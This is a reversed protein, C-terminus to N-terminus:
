RTAYRGLFSRFTEAMYHLMEQTLGPYVGVFFTDKLVKGTHPLDGAARYTIEKYAPHSLINGAFLMRTEIRNEELWTVLERRTFPADDRLTIPLCFWSPDADPLSRPLILFDEYEALVTRLFRFNEKRRATFEPLKGLQVLGMACQLDLPKLNYGINSYVYKHDYGDPLGDYHHDYRHGCAGLPNEEGTRCYCARGWDRISLAQRYLNGNNTIVAGGEGMTMHHAAYFSFTGFDGFTGCYKGKFSSDLADCSDEVVFLGRARAFDMVRDMPAPNGLTHAFVVARTKESLAKELLEPDVNYTDPEVDVFVPVLGNQLIPNLTTPFALATTIVEDGPQLRGQVKPSCLASIALLNASSGSNAVLGHKVGLYGTLAKIFADGKEGLTLHFDLLSQAMATMERHDYVRGAYHVRSKGPIFVKESDKLKYFEEIKANIDDRLQKEPTLEGKGQAEM